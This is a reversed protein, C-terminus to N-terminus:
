NVALCVKRSLGRNYEPVSLERFAGDCKLKQIFKFNFKSLLEFDGGDLGIVITKPKKNLM